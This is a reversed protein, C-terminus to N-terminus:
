CAAATTTARSQRRRTAASSASSPAPTATHTALSTRRPACSKARRASSSAHTQRRRRVRARPRWHGAQHRRLIPDGAGGRRGARLGRDGRASASWSSGGPEGDSSQRTSGDALKYAFVNHSAKPDSREAVFQMADNATSVPAAFAVFRSKKVVEEFECPARLTTLVAPLCALWRAPRTSRARTHRERAESEAHDLRLFAQPPRSTVCGLRRPAGAIRRSAM